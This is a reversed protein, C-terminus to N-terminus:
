APAVPPTPPTPPDPTDDKRRGGAGDREDKADSELVGKLLARPNMFLRMRTGTLRELNELTSIAETVILYILAAHLTYDAALIYPSGAIASELQYALILVTSYATVKGLTKRGGIRSNVKRARAAAAIGLALDLVMVIALARHATTVPGFASLLLAITGKAIWGEGLRMFAHTIDNVRTLLSGVLDGM